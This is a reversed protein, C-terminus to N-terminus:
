IEQVKLLKFTAKLMLPLNLTVQAVLLMPQFTIIIDHQTLAVHRSLDFESQYCSTCSVQSKGEHTGKDERPDCHTLIM